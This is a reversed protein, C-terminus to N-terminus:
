EAASKTGNPSGGIPYGGPLPRAAATFGAQFLREKVDRFDGYSDPYTWITVTTEDPRMRALQREFASGSALAEEVPEGLESSQPVMVFRKLEIMRAVRPGEDTNVRRQVRQLTYKMTFGGEPGIIETVEDTNGLKWLKNKADRKLRATMGSIPVYTLRGGKLRFHEENGFVTKAIPTARNKIVQTHTTAAAVSEIQEKLRALEVRSSELESAVTLQVQDDESLSQRRKELSQEAMSIMLQLNNREEARKATLEVVENSQSAISFIDAELKETTAQQQHLKSAIEEPSPGSPMPAMTPTPLDIVVLEDEELFAADAEVPQSTAVQRARVGIVMILIVLIGVLNAVIDLFSDYNQDEHVDKVHRRM